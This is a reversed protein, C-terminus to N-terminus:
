ADEGVFPENTMWAEVKDTNKSVMIKSDPLGLKKAAAKASAYSLYFVAVGRIGYARDKDSAPALV